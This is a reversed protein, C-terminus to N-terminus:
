QVFQLLRNIHMTSFCLVVDLIFRLVVGKDIPENVDKGVSSARPSNGGCTGHGCPSRDMAGNDPDAADAVASLCSDPRSAEFYDLLEHIGPDENEISPDANGDGYLGHLMSEAPSVDAGDDAYCLYM